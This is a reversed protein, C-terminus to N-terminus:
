HGFDVALFSFTFIVGAGVELSDCKAQDSPPLCARHEAELGVWEGGHGPEWGDWGLGLM